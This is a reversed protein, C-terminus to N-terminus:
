NKLFKRSIFLKLSENKYKNNLVYYDNSLSTLQMYLEEKNKSFELLLVNLENIKAHNTQLAEDKASLLLTLTEEKQKLADIQNIHQKSILKGNLYLKQLEDVKNNLQSIQNEKEVISDQAKALDCTLQNRENTIMELDNRVKVVEAILTQKETSELSLSNATKEIESNAHILEKHLIQNTDLLHNISSNMKVQNFSNEKEKQEFANTLVQQTELQKELSANITNLSDIIQDYRQLALEAEQKHQVLSNFKEEFHSKWFWIEESKRNSEELNDKLQNIYIDQNLAKFNLYDIIELLDKKEVWSRGWMHIGYTEPYIHEVYKNLLHAKHVHIPYFYETPYLTINSIVQFGYTILGFKSKLVKTTLGPGSLDSKESGDFITVLEQYCVQIFDSSKQSGVIANNIISDVGESPEQEFGLFCEHVLFPDLAKLLKFDTDLYIGGWNKLAWLRIYNSCNSWNKLKLASNLYADDLPANSEDWRKIEWGPHLVKWEEIYGAYEAPLESGGFWCYHIIKPILRKNRKGL